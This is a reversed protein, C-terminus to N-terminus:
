SPRNTKLRGTQRARWASNVLIVGIAGILILGPIFASNWALNLAGIPPLELTHFIMSFDGTEKIYLDGYEVTRCISTGEHMENWTELAIWNPYWENVTTWNSPYFAPSRPVYM